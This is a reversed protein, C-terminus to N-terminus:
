LVVVVTDVSLLLVEAGKAAISWDAGWYYDKHERPLTLGKEGQCSSVHTVISNSARPYVVTLAVLSPPSLALNSYNPM